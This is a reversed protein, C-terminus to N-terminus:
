PREWWCHMRPVIVPGSARNEPVLRANCQRVAGPGPYEYEYPVPYNTSFTRYPYAPSVHIRSRPRTRRLPRYDAPSDQALTEDADALAVAALGLGLMLLTIARKTKGPM